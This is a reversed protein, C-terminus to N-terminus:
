IIETVHTPNASVIMPFSGGFVLLAPFQTACPRPPRGQEAAKKFNRSGKQLQLKSETSAMKFSQRLKLKLALKAARLHFFM